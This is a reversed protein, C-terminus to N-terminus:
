DADATAVMETVTVIDEECEYCFDDDHEVDECHQQFAEADKVVCGCGLCKIRKRLRTRLDDEWAQKHTRACAIAAEDKSDDPSFRGVHDDDSNVL